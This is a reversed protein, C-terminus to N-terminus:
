IASREQQRIFQTRWKKNEGRSNTKGKLEISSKLISKIDEEKRNKIDNWFCRLYKYIVTSISEYPLSRQQNYKPANAYILNLEFFFKYYLKLSIMENKNILTMDERCKETIIGLMERKFYTNYYEIFKKMAFPSLCINFLDKLKDADIFNINMNM